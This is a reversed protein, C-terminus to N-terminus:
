SGSRKKHFATVQKKHFVVYDAHHLPEGTTAHVFPHQTNGPNFKVPHSTHEKEDPEDHSIKGKLYAYVKKGAAHADHDVHPKVNHLVVREREDKFTHKDDDGRVQWAVTHNNYNVKEERIQKLIQRFRM